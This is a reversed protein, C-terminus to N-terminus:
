NSALYVPPSLNETHKQFESSPELYTLQIYLQSVMYVCYMCICYVCYIYVTNVNWNTSYPNGGGKLRIARSKPTNTRRLETILSNGIWSHKTGNMFEFDIKILSYKFGIYILLGRLLRRVWVSTAIHNITMPKAYTKPLHRIEFICINLDM